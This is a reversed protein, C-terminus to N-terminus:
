QILEKIFLAIAETNLIKDPRMQDLAQQPMYGVESFAPDQVITFGGAEHIKRLGEAGDANAGSLLIGIVANGFVHAASEFSVDISPRSHHVKESSDLSFLKDNEILLHYDSPAIYVTDGFISEKDEVEKVKLKTRTALLDTLISEVDNKRHVVVVTTVQKNVPLATIIKLIGDLSGASGGIILLKYKTISDQAM